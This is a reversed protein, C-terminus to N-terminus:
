ITKLTVTLIAKEQSHETLYQTSEGVTDNLFVSEQQIFM